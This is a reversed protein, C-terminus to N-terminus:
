TGIASMARKTQLSLVGHRLANFRCDGKLQDDVQLGGLRERDRGALDADNKHGNMAAKTGVNTSALPVM